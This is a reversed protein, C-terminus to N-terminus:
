PASNSQRGGALLREVPPKLHRAFAVRYGTGPGANDIVLDRLIQLYAVANDHEDALPLADHWLLVDSSRDGSGDVLCDYLADWNEGFYHPFAFANSFFNFLDKRTACRPVAVLTEHARPEPAHDAFLFPGQHDRTM